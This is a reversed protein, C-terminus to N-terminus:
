GQQPDQSRRGGGLQRRESHGDSKLRDGGNRRPEPDNEHELAPCVLGARVQQYVELAAQFQEVIEASRGGAAEAQELEAGTEAIRRLAAKYAPWDPKEFLPM